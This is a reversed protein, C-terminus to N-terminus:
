HKIDYELAKLIVENINEAANKVFEFERQSSKLKRYEFSNNDLLKDIYFELEEEKRCTIALGMETYDLPFTRNEFNVVILPIGMLAAEMGTTSFTTIVLDSIYYFPKAEIKTVIVNEDNLFSYTNINQNPHLKIIFLVNKKNKAISILRKIDDIQNVGNESFFTVVNRYKESNIRKKVDYIFQNSIKLNEEFVPQGTIFISKESINKRSIAFQKAWSNMVCLFCPYGIEDTVPLDNIRVVPIGLRQAALGTAMEMRPSSTVVCVDPKILELYTVLSEVPLFAKRNKEYFQKEASERGLDNILDYMGVGYYSITHNLPIGFNKDHYETGYLKGYEVIKKYYPLRKAFDEITIHKIGSKQLQLPAGTLALYEIEIDTEKNLREYVSKIINCHGGGYSVMFVKKM